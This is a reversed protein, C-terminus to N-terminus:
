AIPVAGLIIGVGFQDGTKVMSVVFHDGPLLQLPIAYPVQFQVLNYKSFRPTEFTSSFTSM